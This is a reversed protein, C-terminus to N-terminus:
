GRKSSNWCDPYVRPQSADIVKPQSSDTGDAERALNEADNGDIDPELRNTRGVSEGATDKKKKPIEAVKLYGAEKLVKFGAFFHEGKVEIEVVYKQYVAAPYFISLFRRVIVQYIKRNLEPLSRLAGLGQGTPIIAYHDTIQKDNVYRTKAINKWLGAQMAESAFAALPEYHTLGGINKSIEKAVATDKITPLKITPTDITCSKVLYELVTFSEEMPMTKPKVM